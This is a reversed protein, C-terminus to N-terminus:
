VLVNARFEGATQTPSKLFCNGHAGIDGQKTLAEPPTSSLSESSKLFNGILGDAIENDYGAQFSLLFTM